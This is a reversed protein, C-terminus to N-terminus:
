VWELQLELNTLRLLLKSGCVHANLANLSYYRAFVHELPEGNCSVRGMLIVNHHDISKIVECGVNPRFIVPNKAM